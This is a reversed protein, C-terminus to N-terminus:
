IHTTWLHTSWRKNIGVLGMNQGETLILSTHVRYFIILWHITDISGLRYILESFFFSSFFDKFFSILIKLIQLEQVARFLLIAQMVQRLYGYTKGYQCILYNM